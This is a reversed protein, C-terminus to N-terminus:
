KHGRTKDDPRQGSSDKMAAFDFPTLTGCRTCEALPKEDEETIIKFSNNGCKPCNLQMASEGTDNRLYNCLLIRTPLPDRM